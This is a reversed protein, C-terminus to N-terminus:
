MCDYSWTRPPCDRWVWTRPRPGCTWGWWTEPARMGAAAGYGYGPAGADAFGGEYPTPTQDMGCAPTEMPTPQPCRPTDIPCTPTRVPCGPPLTRPPWCPPALTRPPCPWTVTRACEPWTLTRPPWCPPAVTRPQVCPWTPTRPLMAAPDMAEAAPGYGYGGPLRDYGGEVPTRPTYGEMGNPECAPTEVPLPCVPSEIPCMPTCLWPPTPPLCPQMPTKPPWCGQVPTCLPTKPPWCPAAPTRCFPTKPPCPWMPTKPWCPGMPTLPFAAAPAEEPEGYGYGPQVECVPTGWEVERTPAYGYGGGAAGAFGGEAAPTYPTQDIGCAPTEMPCIATRPPVCGWRPTLPPLCPWRPTRPPCSPWRFTRPIQCMPPRTVPQWAGMVPQAEPAYAAEQPGYGYYGYYGYGNSM